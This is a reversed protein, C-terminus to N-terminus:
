NNEKFNLKLEKTKTKVKKQQKQDFNTLLINKQTHTELAM